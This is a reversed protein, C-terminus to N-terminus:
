GAMSPHVPKGHGFFRDYWVLFIYVTWIKRSNDTKENTNKGKKHDDLMKVLLKTNFFKEAADSTFMDKVIQYYKDEKLWVRTPIPFGLKKKEATKSRIVRDAAGRLAVKTRPARVKYKLPLRQAVELVKKDLFPVRVELSNAMGMKDGKMLIDHVLWLHLDVYQMKTVPDKDKVRDYLPKTVKRIGPRCGKKLLKNAERETFINTANAFYREELTKGHRILFGRGKMGRPLCYEAFKGLVRRVPMPIKNFGTHELPECYINYGGFLEDSGEGSLVVKVKKAAERSLFFLAIAAPDAVPEDMYYQIDSLSDWYEEPTIVKADNKMHISEAFEKADQIESYKGEDFGVTFTRDVEGLYTLYSSDVGSSLYSAVEVDSIKHMKVSDKMVAEVEDVTEKFSKKSDGTFHPEFYRTIKLKGNEYIFYHGPQLCFVGKFFTENTPVFQFSLYNGLAAENFVKNFRPHEIFSKIESGFLLTNNMQAYYLPKIGFIDRAAFLRKKPIDWIAFAYMGRLRSLLKEGWQEYGHLLTESDTNSTFTHGADILEKRLEQYNYIEGNFVLVKSRDENYLPQDGEKSLDIISLRRFGLAADEDIYKGDSDPGRHVITNMMNVLTEEQNDLQGVFGTFGCM